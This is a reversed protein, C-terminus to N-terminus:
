LKNNHIQTVVQMLQEPTIEKEFGYDTLLDKAYESYISLENFLMVYKKEITPQILLTQYWVSNRYGVSM